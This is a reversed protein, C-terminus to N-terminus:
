RSPPEHARAEARAEAAERLARDQEDRAQQAQRYADDAQLEGERAETAKREALAELEEARLRAERAHAEREARTSASEYRPDDGAPLAALDIEYHHVLEQEMTPELTAGPDTQPADKVLDQPYAVRVHERSVTAGDLPVLLHRRGLLGTKVCGFIADRSGAEFYVDELKGIKEGDRDVVSQGVWEEIQEIQMDPGTGGEDRRDLRRTPSSVPSVRQELVVIAHGPPGTGHRTRAAVEVM